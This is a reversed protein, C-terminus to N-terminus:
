MFAAIRLAEIQRFEGGGAFSERSRFDFLGDSGAQVGRERGFFLEARLNKHALEGRRLRETDRAGFFDGRDAFPRAGAGDRRISTGCRLSNPPSADAVVIM